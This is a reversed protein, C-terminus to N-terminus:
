ARGIEKRLVFLGLIFWFIAGWMVAYQYPWSFGDEPADTCKAILHGTTFFPLQMISVGGFYKFALNGNKAPTAQYFLGGSMKYTSDMEPFWKLQKVDKYIFIAPSYMYYGLADYTTANYGNKSNNEFYCLRVIVALGIVAFLAWVSKSRM